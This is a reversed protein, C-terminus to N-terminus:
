EVIAVSTREKTNGQYEERYAGKIMEKINPSFIKLSFAFWGAVPLMIVAYWLEWATDPNDFVSRLTIPTFIPWFLSALILLFLLVSALLSFWRISSWTRWKRNVYDDEIQRLQRKARDLESETEITIGRLKEITRRSINVNSENDRQLQEVEAQLRQNRETLTLNEDDSLILETTKDVLESQARRLEDEKEDIQRKLIGTTEEYVIEEREGEDSTSAFKKMFLENGLIKSAVAADVGRYRNLRGIIDQIDNNDYGVARYSAASSFLGVFTKFYEDSPKIFSIIQLLQSPLVVVPPKRNFDHDYRQLAFLGGDTTMFLCKTEVANTATIDQRSSVYAIVRADSWASGYLKDKDHAFIKDLFIKGVEDYQELEQEAAEEIEIGLSEIVIKSSQYYANFDEASIGTEYHQKWFTSVYNDRTRYKYAVDLLYAQHSHTRIYSADTEM